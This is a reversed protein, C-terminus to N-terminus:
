YDSIEFNWPMKRFFEYRIVYKNKNDVITYASDIETARQYDLWLTNLAQDLNPASPKKRYAPM